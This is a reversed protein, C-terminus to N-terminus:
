RVRGVINMCVSKTFDTNSSLVGNPSAQWCGMYGVSKGSSDFSVFNKGNNAVLTNTGSISEHVRLIRDTNANFVGSPSAVDVFVIWGRSWDANSGTGCIPSSSTPTDTRCMTVTRGRRLAEGRAFRIDMMFDNVARSTNANAILKTFAPVGLAALIVAVAVVVLLEILTFGNSRHSPLTQNPKPM